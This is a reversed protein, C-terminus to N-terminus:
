KNNKRDYVLNRRRENANSKGDRKNWKWQFLFISIHEADYVTFHHGHLSNLYNNLAFLNACFLYVFFLYAFLLDYYSSHILFIMWWFLLIIVMFLLIHQYYWSVCSYVFLSVDTASLMKHVIEMCMDYTIYMTKKKLTVFFSMKIQIVFSLHVTHTYCLIRDLALICLDIPLCKM